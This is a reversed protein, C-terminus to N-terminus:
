PFTFFARSREPLSTLIGGPGPADEGHAPAPGRLMGGSQAARGRHTGGEGRHMGAPVPEGWGTAPFARGEGPGAGSAAHPSAASSGDGPGHRLRPCGPPVECGGPPQLEGRGSSRTPSGPSLLRCTDPLSSCVNCKLRLSKERGRARSRPQNQMNARPLPPRCAPSASGRQARLTQNFGHSM